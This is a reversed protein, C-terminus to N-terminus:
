REFLLWLLQQALRAYCPLYRIPLPKNQGKSPGSHYRSCLAACYLYGRANGDYTASGAPLPM